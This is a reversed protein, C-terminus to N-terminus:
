GDKSIRGKKTTDQFMSKVNRDVGTRSDDAKVMTLGTDPKFAWRSAVGEGRPLAEIQAPSKLSTNYATMGFEKVLEPEAGEKWARNSKAAALKRGPIEHGANLRAFAAEKVKKGVINALDLLDLIRSVQENTLEGAGVISVMSLMEQLEDMDKVIQPCARGVMPCFRCHDGSNTEDSSFAKEMAPILTEYLWAKLQPASISWHRIPGDSHYARPQVICLTINDVKDWLNNEHILGCAYYMLQPNEQVEVVIGAGHKYDAVLLDRSAEGSYSGLDVTGYFAPHLDPCNFKYEVWRSNVGPLTNASAYDLYVQVANVMESTVDFGNIRDGAWEWAEMGKELCDKAVTHAVTGEAALYDSEEKAVGRSLSASGPCKMWRNAGSAGLLSHESM